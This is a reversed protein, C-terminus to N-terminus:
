GQWVWWVHPLNGPRDESKSEQEGSSIHGENYRGTASTVDTRAVRTPWEGSAELLGHEYAVTIERRLAARLQDTESM